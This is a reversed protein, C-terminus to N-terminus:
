RRGAPRDPQEGDPTVELPAVPDPRESNPRYGLRGTRWMTWATAVIWVDTVGLGLRQTLGHGPDVTSASLLVASGVAAAVSWAAWDKRGAARFSRSALLPTAALTVYGAIAVVGHATDAAGLPAAAVGLTCLGTAAVTMWAPGALARRLPVAYVPMALGFVIFGATMWGRGPADTAALQSSADDIPSYGARTAGRVAWAGVFSAVGVIGALALRRETMTLADGPSEPSGDGRQSATVPIAADVDSPRDGPVGLSPRVRVMSPRRTSESFGFRCAPDLPAMAGLDEGDVTATAAHLFRCSVAQYWEQVGTPSTGWTRVGMLVQAVPREVWRTFWLPRAPLRLVTRGARLDLRLTGARVRLHDASAEVDFDVVRVEDFQYVATVFAATREDPALLVRTGDPRAWMVDVTPGVPSRDWRGVVFRDGSAFGSSTITGRM